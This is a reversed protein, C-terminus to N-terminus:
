TVGNRQELWDIETTLYYERSEIRGHSKEHTETTDAKGYIDPAQIVSFFYDSIDKKLGAQNDKVTLM